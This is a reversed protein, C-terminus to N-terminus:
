IKSPHKISNLDCDHNHSHHGHAKHITRTAQLAQGLYPAATAIVAAIEKEGLGYVLVNLDLRSSAATGAAAGRSGAGQNTGTTSFYFYGATGLDLFGKIHGIVAAGKERCGAALANFFDVGAQKWTVVPLPELANLVKCAAYPVLVPDASVPM